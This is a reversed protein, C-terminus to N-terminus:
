YGCAFFTQKGVEGLNLCKHGIYEYDQTTVVLGNSMSQWVAPDFALLYEENNCNTTFMTASDQCAISIRAGGFQEDVLRQLEQKYLEQLDTPMKETWETVSIPTAVAYPMAVATNAVNIAIVVVVGMLGVGILIKLGISLSMVFNVFRNNKM